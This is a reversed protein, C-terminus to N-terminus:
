AKTQTWPRDRLSSALIASDDQNLNEIYDNGSASMLLRIFFEGKIRQNKELKNVFM